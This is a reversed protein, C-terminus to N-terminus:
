SQVYNFMFTANANLVFFGAIKVLDSPEFEGTSRITFKHCFIKNDICLPSLSEIDPDGNPKKHRACKAFAGSKASGLKIDEKPSTQWDCRPVCQM